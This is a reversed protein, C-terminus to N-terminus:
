RDRSDETVYKEIIQNFMMEQGGLIEVKIPLAYINEKIETPLDSRHLLRTADKETTIIAKKKEAISRYKEVITNLDATSFNHHDGFQMLTVKTERREIEAKLPAPKAIGTLLLAEKVEDISRSPASEPFVPYISGYRMTSFFLPANSRKEIYGRCENTQEDTLANCKTIIIIDARKIGALSERMRGFPLVCDNWIPRNSDTLLINLGAKVHRHQYADDLLIVEIDKIDNRLKEIGKVRKECVAVTIDPYKSKMQFPEDGIVPMPTDSNAKIYGKSKRGYGRSLVATKYKHQLLEILYETHPTKGTGGVTINGICITPLPPTYVKKIGSDFMLNRTATAWRYPNIADLLIKIVGKEKNIM